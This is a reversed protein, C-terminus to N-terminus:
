RKIKKQRAKNAQAPEILPKLEGPSARLESLQTASILPPQFADDKEHAGLIVGDRLVRKADVHSFGSQRLSLYRSRTYIRRRMDLRQIFYNEAEAGLWHMPTLGAIFVDVLEEAAHDTVEGTVDGLPTTMLTTLAESAEGVEQQLQEMSNPFSREKGLAEIEWDVSDRILGSISTDQAVYHVYDIGDMENAYLNRLMESCDAIYQERLPGSFEIDRTFRAFDHLIRELLQPNIRKGSQEWEAKLISKAERADHKQAMLQVMREPPYKIRRTMLKEMIKLEIDIGLRSLPAMIAAIYDVYENIFQNTLEPDRFQTEHANLYVNFPITFPKDMRFTGQMGTQEELRGLAYEINSPIFTDTVGELSALSKLLHHTSEALTQQMGFAWHEWRRAEAQYDGLRKGPEAGEPLDHAHSLSLDLATSIDDGGNTKWPEAVWHPKWKSVSELMQGEEASM